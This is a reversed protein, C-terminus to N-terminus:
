KLSKLIAVAEAKKYHTSEAIEKLSIKAKDVDGSKLYSLSMYWQVIDQYQDAGDAKKAKSFLDIGSKVKNSKLAAIGAFVLYDVKNEKSLLFTANAYDGNNYAEMGLEANSKSKSDVEEGRENSSIADPLVEFYQAYLAAPPLAKKAKGDSYGMYGLVGLMIIAILLYLGKKLSTSKPKEDSNSDDDELMDDIMSDLSTKIEGIDGQKSFSALGKNAKKELEDM